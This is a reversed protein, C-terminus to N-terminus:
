ANKLPNLILPNADKLSTRLGLWSTWGLRGSEGLKVGEIEEAKLILNMDWVLEYGIYNQVIATLKKLRQGMPLLSEYQRLTLPGFVLRFKHQCGWVRSGLVTSRGLTCSESSGLCSLDAMEIELWEGVFQELKVPLKFFDRIIAKLGDANKAHHALHGAYHYKALDPMADRQLFSEDGIGLLSGVYTSFRDNPRDFNFTPETNAKARYFLSIMRHHFLDAFRALTTDHNHYMRGKVYETIHLPMPGNAGFLGLFYQNLRPPFGGKGPIFQSLTSPEFALTVEQGFRVPDDEARKSKGILPKDTYACELLRLAHFFGYKYAEKQLKLTLDNRKEWNEDAM